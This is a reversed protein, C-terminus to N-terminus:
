CDDQIKRDEKYYKNIFNVILEAFDEPNNLHAHHTGEVLHFDCDNNTIKLVELFEDFYEKAEFYSGSLFKAIFIPTKM